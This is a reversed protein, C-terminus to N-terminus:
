LWCHRKVMVKSVVEAQIVRLVAEPMTSFGASGLFVPAGTLNKLEVVVDDIWPLFSKRSVFSCDDTNRVSLGVALPEANKLQRQLSAKWDSEFCFDLVQVSVGADILTEGIYELGVPSVPPRAVNTNILLIAHTM